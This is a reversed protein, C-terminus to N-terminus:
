RWGDTESPEKDETVRKRYYEFLWVAFALVVIPGIVGLWMDFTTTEFPNVIGRWGPENKPFSFIWGTVRSFLKHTRRLLEV